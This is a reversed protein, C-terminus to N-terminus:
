EPPWKPKPPAAPEATDLNNLWQLFQQPDMYGVRRTREQGNKFAIITPMAEIKLERATDSKDDVDLAVAVAHEAIWAKVSADPWTSRAMEQCPGCWTATADVLLWKGGSANEQRAEAYSRSDFPAGHSASGSKKDCAALAALSALAVGVFVIPLSLRPM